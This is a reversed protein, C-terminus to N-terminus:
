QAHKMGPERDRYWEALAGKIKQPSPVTELGLPDAAATLVNHVKRGAQSLRIPDPEQGAGLPELPGPHLTLSLSERIVDTFVSQAKKYDRLKPLDEEWGASSGTRVEEVVECWREIMRDEQHKPYRMLYLHTALDYLPDGLMALEWDITWLRGEPDLIFNERHLDAHLLCFPRENLGSVQKRLHKFSVDHVGLARFLGGFDELNQEYVREETFTILRELFGSTDRDTARDAPKCTRKALLTDPTIDVLQRFLEVIQGFVSSPIARGARYHWGLTEGEIFRQLPVTEAQIIDPISTIRGQLAGVLDEESAFCRRDFWFAGIRPERCKWRVQWLGGAEGPLPFVYTEHHYGQLPGEVM